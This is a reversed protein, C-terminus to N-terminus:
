PCGHVRYFSLRRRVCPGSARPFGTLEESVLVDSDIENAFSAIAWSNTFFQIQRKREYNRVLLLQETCADVKLELFAAMLNALSNVRLPEFYANNSESSM